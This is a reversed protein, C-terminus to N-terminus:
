EDCRKLGREGFTGNWSHYSAGERERSMEGGQIKRQRRRPGKFSNDKKKNM